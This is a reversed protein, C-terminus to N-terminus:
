GESAEAGWGEPIMVVIAKKGSPLRELQWDCATISRKQDALGISRASISCRFYGGPGRKGLQMNRGVDRRGETLMLEGATDGDGVQVRVSGDVDIAAKKLIAMSLRFSARLSAAEGKKIGQSTISM